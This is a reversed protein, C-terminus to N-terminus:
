SERTQLVHFSFLILFDDQGAIVASFGVMQYCM